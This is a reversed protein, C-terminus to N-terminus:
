AARLATYPQPAVATRNPMIEGADEFIVVGNCLLSWGQELHGAIVRAAAHDPAFAAPCRPVHQCKRPPNDVTQTRSALSSQYMTRVQLEKNLRPPWTETLTTDPYTPRRQPRRTVQIRRGATGPQRSPQESM